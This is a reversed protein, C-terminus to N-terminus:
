PNCVRYWDGTTELHAGMEYACCGNPCDRSLSCLISSQNCAPEYYYYYESNNLPDVPLDGIYDTELESEITGDWDTGPTHPFTGGSCVQSGFSGLSSDCYNEGPYEGTDVRYVELASRIQELDNKRKADRASAKSGQFSVLALGMIIAIVTMAVLLEILSFGYNTNRIM